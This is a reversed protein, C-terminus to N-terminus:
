KQLSNACLIRIAFLANVTCTRILSPFFWSFILVSRRLLLFFFFNTFNYFNVLRFRTPIFIVCQSSDFCFFPCIEVSTSSSVKRVKVRGAGTKVRWRPPAFEIKGNPFLFCFFFETSQTGSATILTMESGSLSDSEQNSSRTTHSPSKAQDFSTKRNEDGGGGDDDDVFVDGNSNRRDNTPQAQPPSGLIKVDLASSIEAQVKSM